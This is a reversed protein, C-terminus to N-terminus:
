TGEESRGLLAVAQCAIGEGRGTFGMGETTTGKVSVRDPAVALAGALRARMEEVRPAIRPREAVIVVDANVM